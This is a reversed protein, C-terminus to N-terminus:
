ARRRAVAGVLAAAGAVVGVGVAAMALYLDVNNRKIWGMADGQPQLHDDGYHLVVELEDAARETSLRGSAIAISRLRRAAAVFSAREDPGVLRELAREVGEESLTRKPLVIGAGAEEILRSNRPQDSFHPVSLVPKAAFFCESSSETGGHSVFAAVSPHELLAKQPVWTDVLVLDPPALAPDRLGAAVLRDEPTLSVSWVAGDIVGRALLRRLGGLLASLRATSLSCNQGFSLLVLRAAAGGQEDGGAGSARRGRARAEAAAVFAAFRGELAQAASAAGHSRVPGILRVSAPLPRATEHGWFTNVLTLRGRFRDAPSAQGARPATVGLAKRVRGAERLAPLAAWLATAPEVTAAHLRQPLSLRLTTPMGDQTYLPRTWPADAMGPVLGSTTAAYPIGLEDCVDAAFGYFVDVVFLAPREEEARARTWAYLAKAFDSGMTGLLRAMVAPEDGREAVDEIKQAFDAWLAATVSEPVREVEFVAGYARECWDANRADVQVVVRYGRAALHRLCELYPLSHSRSILVPCVIPGCDAPPTPFVPNAATTDAFVDDLPAYVAHRFTSAASAKAKPSPARGGGNTAARDHGM